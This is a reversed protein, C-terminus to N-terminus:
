RGFPSGSGFFPLGPLGTPVPLGTPICSSVNFNAVSPTGTPLQSTINAVFSMLNSVCASLGNPLPLDKVVGSVCGVVKPGIESIQGTPVTPLSRVLDLVPTLCGLVQTPIQTLRSVDPLSGGPIPLSSMPLTPTQPALPQVATGAGAATSASGVSTAVSAGNTGQVSADSSTAPPATDAAAVTQDIAGVTVASGSQGGGVPLVGSAAGAVTMTIAATTTAVAVKAVSGLGALKALLGGLIGTGFMNVTGETNDNPHRLSLTPM